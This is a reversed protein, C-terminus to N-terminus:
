DKVIDIIYHVATSAQTACPYRLPGGIPMPGVTACIDCHTSQAVMVYSLTTHASCQPLLTSM